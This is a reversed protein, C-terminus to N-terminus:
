NKDKKYWKEKFLISSLHICINETRLNFKGIIIKSECIKELELLTRSLHLIEYIAYIYFSKEFRFDEHLM